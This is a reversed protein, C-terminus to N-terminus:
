RDHFLWYVMGFPDIVLEAGLKLFNYRCHFRSCAGLVKLHWKAGDATSGVVRRGSM